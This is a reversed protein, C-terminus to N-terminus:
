YGGMSNSETRMIGRLMKVVYNRGRKHMIECCKEIAAIEYANLPEGKRCAHKRKWDMATQVTHPDNM